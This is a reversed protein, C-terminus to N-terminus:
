LRLHDWPESHSNPLIKIKGTLITTALFPVHILSFQSDYTTCYRHTHNHSRPLTSIHPTSIPLLHPPIQSHLYPSLLFSLFLFIIIIFLCVCVIGANHTSYNIDSPVATYDNHHKSMLLLRKNQFVNERNSKNKRYSGQPVSPDSCLVSCSTSFDLCEVLM